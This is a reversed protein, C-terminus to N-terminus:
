DDITRRRTSNRKMAKLGVTVVVVAVTAVVLSVSVAVVWGMLDWPSM